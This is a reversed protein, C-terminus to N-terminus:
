MQRGLLGEADTVGFHLEVKFSEYDQRLTRFDSDM